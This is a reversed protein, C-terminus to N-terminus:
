VEQSVSVCGWKGLAFDYLFGVTTVKSATTATPLTAWMSTFSSWWTINRTTGNDKIRVILQQFDTPVGTITFGTINVALATINVCAYKEVHISPTASSTVSYVEKWRFVDSPYFM